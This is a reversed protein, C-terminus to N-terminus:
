PQVEEFSADSMVAALMDLHALQQRLREIEDAALNYLADGTIKGEIGLLKKRRAKAADLDRVDQALSKGDLARGDHKGDLMDRINQPLDKQSYDTITTM